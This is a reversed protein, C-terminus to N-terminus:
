RYIEWIRLSNSLRECIVGEGVMPSPPSRQIEKFYKETSDMFFLSTNLVAKFIFGVYIVDGM